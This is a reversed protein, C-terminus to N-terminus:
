NAIKSCNQALVGGFVFVWRSATEVATMATVTNFSFDFSANGALILNPEVPFTGDVVGDFSDVPNVASATYGANTAQQSVPAKFHKLTAWYPLVQDNDILGTLFGNCLAANISSACNATSFVTANGYTYLQGAGVTAGSPKAAYIGIRNVIFVDTLNLRKESPLATGNQQDNQGIPIHFRSAVAMAVESRIESQTLKASKVDYGNAALLNAANEFVLRQSFTNVQLGM